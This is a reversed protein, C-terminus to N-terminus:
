KRKVKSIARKVMPKGKTESTAIKNNLKKLTTLIQANLQNTQAFQSIVELAKAFSDAQAAIAPFQSFFSEARVIFANLSREMTEQQRSVKM